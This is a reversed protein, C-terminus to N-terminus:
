KEAAPVFQLGTKLDERDIDESMSIGKSGGVYGYNLSQRLTGLITKEDRMNQAACTRHSTSRTDRFFVHNGRFIAKGSFDNCGLNGTVTSNRHFEFSTDKGSQFKETHDYVSWSNLRFKTDFISSDSIM